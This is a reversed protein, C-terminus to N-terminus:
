FKIYLTYQSAVSQVVPRDPNSGRCLCSSNEELRKKWVPEPVWGSEQGTPVPPGKGPALDRGPRSASWEGGDLALTLFSCPSHMRGGEIAEMSNLPVAKLQVYLTTTKFLPNTSNICRCSCQSVTHLAWVQRVSQCTFWTSIKSVM